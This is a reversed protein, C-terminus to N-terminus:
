DDGTNEPLKTTPDFQQGDRYGQQAFQRRWGGTNATGYIGGDKFDAVVDMVAQPTVLVLGYEQHDADQERYARLVGDCFGFGYANEMQRIVAPPYTDRHKTRIRKSEAVVCDFAYTMIRECVDIDDELGVLGITV